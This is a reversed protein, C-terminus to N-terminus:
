KTALVTGNQLWFTTWFILEFFSGREVGRKLARPGVPPCRPSFTARFPNWFSTWFPNSLLSLVPAKLFCPFHSNSVNNILNWGRRSTWFVYSNSDNPPAYKTFFTPGSFSVEFVCRQFSIHGGPPVWHSKQTGLPTGMQLGFRHFIFSPICAKVKSIGLHGWSPGLDWFHGLM